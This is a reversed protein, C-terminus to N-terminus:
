VFDYLEDVSFKELLMKEGDASIVVFLDHVTNMVEELKAKTDATIFVRLVVQSLTGVASLPIEDGEKYSLVADIVGEVSKIEKVGIIKGILGPKVLFTINCAYSGFNPDITYDNNCSMDGTLAFNIMMKMPNYGNLAEFIKYELSGTLRFGMEYITFGSEDVFSQIFVMGNKLGISNFMKIVKDNLDRQYMETHRSPFTYAVPLPIVGEQNHKTHRNGIGSLYVNGDKLLYFITVEHSTMYREVLVTKSESFDLATQYADNFTSISDCISIGRAGSNDVPKVIVPFNLMSVQQDISDDTIFYEEVVPISFAKCLAKFQNKNTTIAIQEPTLYCPKNAKECIQQYYYLTSDTFGTLVGDINERNILDVVADIDATSVMFYEDAVAKAPSKDVSYWDTVVTHVGMSKAANVVDCMLAPGGLLLLKKKKVQMM